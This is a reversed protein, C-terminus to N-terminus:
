IHFLIYFPSFSAWGEKQAVGYVFVFFVEFHFFSVTSFLNRVSENLAKRLIYALGGLNGIIYYSVTISPLNSQSYFSMKQLQSRVGRYENSFTRISKLNRTSM